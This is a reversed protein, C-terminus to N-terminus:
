CPAGTATTEATEARLSIPHPYWPSTESDRFVDDLPPGVGVFSLTPPGRSAKFQSEAEPSASSPGHGPTPTEATSHQGPTGRSLLAPVSPGLCKGLTWSSAWRTERHPLSQLESKAGSLQRAVRVRVLAKQFHQQPPLLVQGSLSLALTHQKSCRSSAAASAGDGPPGADM